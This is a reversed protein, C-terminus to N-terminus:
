RNMEEDELKSIYMDVGVINHDTNFIVKKMNVKINYMVM